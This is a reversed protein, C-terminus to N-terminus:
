YHLLPGLTLRYLSQHKSNTKRFKWLSEGTFHDLAVQLADILISCRALIIPLWQFLVSDMGAITGHQQGHADRSDLFTGQERRLHGSRSGRRAQGRLFPVPYSGTSSDHRTSIQPFRSSSFFLFPSIADFFLSDRAVVCTRLICGRNSPDRRSSNPNM